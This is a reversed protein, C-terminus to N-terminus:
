RCLIETSGLSGACLIVIDASLETRPAALKVQKMTSRGDEFHIIWGDERRELYQVKVEAFIQAGHNWADPLYNMLLTNKAWYNCGTNCDGCLECHRQAVGVHNVGDLDFNVNVPAKEFPLALAAAVQRMAEIKPLVPHSPGDPYRRSKLMEDAHLYFTDLECPHGRLETPWHSDSFVADVAPKCVGANILSTGGLGCGVVVSVDANFRVDFLGTENGLHGDEHDTQLEVFAGLPTNPYDGPLIERGRELLCVKQGARALRSAAISGGYGSGIVVIKYHDNLESIDSSLYRQQPEDMIEPRPLGLIEFKTNMVLGNQSFTLLFVQRKGGRTRLGSSQDIGHNLGIRREIWTHLETM